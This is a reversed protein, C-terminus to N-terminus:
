LTGPHIEIQVLSIEQEKILLLTSNRLKMNSIQEISQEIYTALIGIPIYPFHRIHFYM